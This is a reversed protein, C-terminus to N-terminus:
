LKTIKGTADVTYNKYVAKSGEIELISVTITSGWSYRFITLGTSTIDAPLQRDSYGGSVFNVTATASGYRKWQYSLYITMGDASQAGILYGNEQQSCSSIFSFLAIFIIFLFRKM